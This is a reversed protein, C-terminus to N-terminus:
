ALLFYKREESVCNGPWSPKLFSVEHAEMTKSFTNHTNKQVCMLFIPYYFFFRHKFFDWASKARRASFILIQTHEALALSNLRIQKRPLPIPEGPGGM